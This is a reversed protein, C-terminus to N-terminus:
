TFMYIHFGSRVHHFLAPRQQLCGSHRTRATQKFFFRTKTVGLTEIMTVALVLTQTQVRLIQLNQIQFSLNHTDKYIYIYTHIYGATAM